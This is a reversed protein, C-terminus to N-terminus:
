DLNLRREKIIEIIEDMNEVGKNSTLGRVLTDKNNIGCRYLQENSINHIKYNLSVYALLQRLDQDSSVYTSKFTGQFLAGSRENKKNFYMTYGGSVRQMFKSIGNDVNNKLILHYHNPLLCYSLITVPSELNDTKTHLRLKGLVTQSNYATLSKLFYDYDQADQFVKRKETGRNYCHYYEGPAFTHKRNGM